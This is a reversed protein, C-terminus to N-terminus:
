APADGQVQARHMIRRANPDFAERRHMACRNDWMLVDGSSWVHKHVFRPQFAAVWVEDLLTESEAVSLGEIYANLRRGLYLSKRSTEPHTRIIPHTPGPCQSADDSEGFGHRLVGDSTHSCDHRCRQGELRARIDAPLADLAAYMNMFSTDGGSEPLEWAHLVSASPPREVFASDTHWLAEGSGLQGIPKGDEVVNSIVNIELPIDAKQGSGRTYNLLKSPPFELAGFSAAFTMLQRDDLDQDPFVLLIHDLWAQRLTAAMDPTLPQSLDVGSVAAGLAGDMASIEISM